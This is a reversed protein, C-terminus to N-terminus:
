YIILGIKFSKLSMTCPPLGTSVDSLFSFPLWLWLLLHLWHLSCESVEEQPHPEDTSWVRLAPIHTKCRQSTMFFFFAFLFDRM